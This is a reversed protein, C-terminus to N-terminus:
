ISLESIPKIETDKYFYLLIEDAQWPRSQDSPVVAGQTPQRTDTLSWGYKALRLGCLQCFGRGHGYAIVGGPVPKLLNQVRRCSGSPVSRAEQEVVDDVSVTRPDACSFFEALAPRRDKRTLIQGKTDIIAQYYDAREKEAGMYLQSLITPLVDWLRPRRANTRAALAMNLAYTRATIIQAKRAEIEDTNLEAPTVSLLYEDLSVVNIVSWHNELSTKTQRAFQIRFGGRFFGTHSVNQGQKVGRYEIKTFGLDFYNDGESSISSLPIVSIARDSSLAVTENNDLIIKNDSCRPAESCNFFMEVIHAQGLQRVVQNSSIDVEQVKFGGKNHLKTYKSDEGTVDPFHGRGRQNPFLKVRIFQYDNPSVQELTEIANKARNKELEIAELEEELTTRVHILEEESFHEVDESFDKNRKEGLVDNVLRIEQLLLQCNIIEQCTQLSDLSASIQNLETTLAQLREELAQEDLVELERRKSIEDQDVELTGSEIPLRNEEEEEPSPPKQDEGLLRDIEEIEKKINGQRDEEIKLNERHIKIMEDRATTLAERDEASLTGAEGQDNGDEVGQVGNIDSNFGTNSCASNILMVTLILSTVNLWKMMM